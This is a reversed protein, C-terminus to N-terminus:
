RSRQMVKSTKRIFELHSIVFKIDSWSVKEGLIEKVPGARLDDVGEFHSAILDAIKQSVFINVPIEGTAVFYALHGEITTISLKREEAIQSVSKGEKFLDYSIKRTEERKKKPIKKESLQEPAPEINETKCYSIIVSLLEEGFKESKKKGMGKVLKLAQQANTYILALRGDDSLQFSRPVIVKGDNTTLQHKNIFVTKNQSPLETKVIEGKEVSYYANGDATWKTFPVGPQAIAFVVVFQIAFFLSFRVFKKRFLM